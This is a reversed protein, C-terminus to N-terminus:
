VNNLWTFKVPIKHTCVGIGTELYFFLEFLKDFPRFFFYDSKYDPSEDRSDLSEYFGFIIKIDPYM